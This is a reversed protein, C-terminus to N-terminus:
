RKSAERVMIFENVNDINAVGALRGDEIVPLMPLSSKRFLEVAKILSDNIDLIGPNKTLVKGIMEEGGVTAMGALINKSTLVGELQQGNVVLFNKEQSSVM